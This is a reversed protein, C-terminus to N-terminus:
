LERLRKLLDAESIEFADEYYWGALSHCHCEYQM